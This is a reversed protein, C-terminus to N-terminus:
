EIWRLKFLTLDEVDRFYFWTYDWAWRQNPSFYESNKEYKIHDYIPYDSFNEMCWKLQRYVWLPENRAIQHM